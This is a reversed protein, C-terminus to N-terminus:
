NKILFIGVRGYCFTQSILKIDKPLLISTKHETSIEANCFAKKVLFLQSCVKLCCDSYNAKTKPCIVERAFVGVFCVIFLKWFSKCKTTSPNFLSLSVDSKHNKFHIKLQQSIYEAKKLLDIFQPNVKLLCFWDKGSKPYSGQRHHKIPLSLPTWIDKYNSTNFEKALKM